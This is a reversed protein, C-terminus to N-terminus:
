DAGGEVRVQSIPWWRSWPLPRADRRVLGTRPDTNRAAWDYWTAEACVLVEHTNLLEVLEIDSALRWDGSWIGTESNPVWARRGFVAPRAPDLRELTVRTPAEILLTKVSDLTRGRDLPEKM